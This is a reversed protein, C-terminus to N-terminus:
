FYSLLIKFLSCERFRPVVYRTECFYLSKWAVGNPQLVGAVLCYGTLTRAGMSAFLQSTDSHVRLDRRMWFWFTGIVYYSATNPYKLILLRQTLFIVSRWIRNTHKPLNLNCLHCRRYLRCQVYLLLDSLRLSVYRFLVKLKVWVSIDLSFCAGYTEEM